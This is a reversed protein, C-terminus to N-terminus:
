TGYAEGGCIPCVMRKSWCRVPHSCGPCRGSQCIPVDDAWDPQTADPTAIFDVVWGGAELQVDSLVFHGQGDAFDSTRRDRIAEYFVEAFQRDTLGSLWELLRQRESM